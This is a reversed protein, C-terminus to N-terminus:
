VSQAMLGAADSGRTVIGGGNTLGVTGGNGAGAGDGGFSFGGGAASFDGSISFGGNGGGGGVSQALIGLAQSGSTGIAGDNKVSVTSASAGNGGAGGGG